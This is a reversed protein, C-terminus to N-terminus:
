AAALVQVYKRVGEELSQFPQTFGARRLKATTAQTFYQYKERLEEPMPDFVILPPREMAAFVAGVLDAFTRATGTGVNYLGNPAEPSAPTNLFHLTAAVADEIFIFDRRQGGHPIGEHHSQFLTAKGHARIQHFAHFAVSAMRAKHREHPGFVNFYKLAVWRPPAKPQELAWLDFKHKSEGYLNLPQLRQPDCADDWGLAGDGYTAASSAYLLPIRERACFNWLARTYDYNVRMVFARDTVTTDSCAGMHIVAQVDQAHHNLWIHLHDKDVFERVGHGDLYRHEQGEAYHDVAVVASGRELLRLAVQSGIFGSAGTVVFM